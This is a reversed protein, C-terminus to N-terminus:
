RCASSPRIASGREYLTRLTRLRQCTVRSAMEPIASTTATKVTSIDIDSPNAIASRVVPLASLAIITWRPDADSSM